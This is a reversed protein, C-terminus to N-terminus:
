LFTLSERTLFLGLVKISTGCSTPVITKAPNGKKLWGSSRSIHLSCRAEDLFVRNKKFDM